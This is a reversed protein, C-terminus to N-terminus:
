KQLDEFSIFKAENIIKKLESAQAKKDQWTFVRKGPLLIFMDTEDRHSTVFIYEYYTNDNFCVYFYEFSYSGWLLSEGEPSVVDISVIDANKLFTGLSIDSSADMIGKYNSIIFAIDSEPFVFKGEQVTLDVKKYTKLLDLADIRQEAAQKDEETVPRLVTGNVIITEGPQAVTTENSSLSETINTKESNTTYGTTNSVNTSCSTLLVSIVIFACALLKKTNM